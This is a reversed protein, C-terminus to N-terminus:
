ICARATELARRVRRHATPVSMGCDDAIRALDAGLFFRLVLVHAEQRPMRGLVEPVRRSLHDPPEESQEPVDRVWRSRRRFHARLKNRVIGWFWGRARQILEPPLVEVAVEGDQIDPLNASLLQDAANGETACGFGPDFRHLGEHFALLSEQFLDEADDRELGKRELFRLTPARMEFLSGMLANSVTHAFM